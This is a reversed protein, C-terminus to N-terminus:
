TDGDQHEALALLYCYTFAADIGVLIPSSGQFIKDRLDVESPSLDQAANVARAREAEEELRNRVTSLSITVHFVDRLVEVIGRLSSHCM